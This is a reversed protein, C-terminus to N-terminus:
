EVLDASDFREDIKRSALETQIRNGAQRVIKPSKCPPTRMELRLSYEQAQRQSNNVEVPQRM